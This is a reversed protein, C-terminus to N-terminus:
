EAARLCFRGLNRSSIRAVLPAVLMDELPTGREAARTLTYQETGSVRVVCECSPDPMVCRVAAALLPFARRLKGGALIKEEAADLLQEFMTRM